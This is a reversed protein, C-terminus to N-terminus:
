EGVRFAAAVGGRWITVTQGDKWDLRSGHSEGAGTVDGGGSPMVCPVGHSYGVESATGQISRAFLNPLLSKGSGASVNWVHVRSVRDLYAALREGKEDWAMATIRSDDNAGGASAVAHSQSARPTTATSGLSGLSGGDFSDRRSQLMAAAAAAAAAAIQQEPTEPTPIAAMAANARATRAEPSLPSDGAAAGDRSSRSTRASRRGSNFFTPSGGSTPSSTADKSGAYSAITNTWGDMWSVATDDGTGEERDILTRWTAAATLDYVIAVTGGAPAPDVAVALRTTRRHYAVTPLRSALESYYVFCATM